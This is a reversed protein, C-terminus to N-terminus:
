LILAIASILSSGKDFWLGVTKYLRKHGPSYNIGIQSCWGDGLLKAHSQQIVSTQSNRYCDVYLKFGSWSKWNLAGSLNLYM